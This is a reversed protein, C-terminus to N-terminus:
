RMRRWIIDEDPLKASFSCEEKERPLKWLAVSSLTDKALTASLLRGKAPGGDRAALLGGASKGRRLGV